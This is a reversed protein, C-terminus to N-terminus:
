SLWARFWAYSGFATLGGGVVLVLVADLDVSM